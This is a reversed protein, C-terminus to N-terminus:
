CKEEVYKIFRRDIKANPSKEKVNEYIEKYLQKSNKMFVPIAIAEDVNDNDEDWIILRKDPFLFYRHYEIEYVEEWLHTKM